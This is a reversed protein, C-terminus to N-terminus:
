EKCMRLSAPLSQYTTSLVLDACLGRPKAGHNLDAHVIYSSCTPNHHADIQGPSANRKTPKLIHLFGKRHMIGLLWLQVAYYWTHGFSVRRSIKNVANGFHPSCNQQVTCLLLVDRTDKWDSVPAMTFLPTRINWVQRSHRSYQTNSMSKRAIPNMEQTPSLLNISILLICCVNIIYMNVYM